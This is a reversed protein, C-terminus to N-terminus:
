ADLLHEASLMNTVIFGRRTSLNNAFLMEMTPSLKTTM